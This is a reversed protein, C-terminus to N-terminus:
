TCDIDGREGQGLVKLSFKGLVPMKATALATLPAYDHPNLAISVPLSTGVIAASYTSSDNFRFEVTWQEHNIEFSNLLFRSISVTSGNEFYIYFYRQKGAPREIRTILNNAARAEAFYQEAQEVTKLENDVIPQVTNDSCACLISAILVLIGWQIKGM